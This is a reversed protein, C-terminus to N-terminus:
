RRSERALADLKMWYRHLSSQSPARENGFRERCLAVAQGIEVLRHLHTVLLAVEVDQWWSPRRGHSLVPLVRVASLESGLAGSARRNAAELEGKPQPRYSLEPASGKLVYLEDLLLRVEDPGLRAGRRGSRCRDLRAVLAVLNRREQAREAVARRERAGAIKWDEAQEAVLRAIEANCESVTASM